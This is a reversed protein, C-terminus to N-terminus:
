YGAAWIALRLALSLVYLSSLTYATWKLITFSRDTM